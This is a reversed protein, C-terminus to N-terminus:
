VFKDFSIKGIKLDRFNSAIFKELKNLYKVCFTFLEDDSCEKNLVSTIPIFMTPKDTDCRNYAIDRGIQRSFNDEPSCLSVGVKINENDYMLCITGMKMQPLDYISTFDVGSMLDYVMKEQNLVRVHRFMVKKKM